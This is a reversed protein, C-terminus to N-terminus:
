SAMKAIRLAMEQWQEQHMTHGMKPNLWLQANPIKKAISQGHEAPFIADEAGHMVLTPCLIETQAEWLGPTTWSANLQRGLGEPRYSRDIAFTIRERVWEAPFPYGNGWLWRWNETSWDIQETRERKETMALLSAQAEKNGQPGDDNRGAGSGSMVVTLTSILKPHRIATWRVIFGGLSSGVLHVPGCDLDQIVAGVDDAMDHLTYPSIDKEDVTPLSLGADRNDMRVVRFGHKAFIECHERPYGVAGIQEGIGAVLVLTPGDGDCTVEYNIKFEGNTVTPV